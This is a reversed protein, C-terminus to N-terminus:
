KWFERVVRVWEDALVQHGSYTPHVGDWIWHMAPARKCAEDLAKQFHVLAAGHKKALGAVIAASTHDVGSSVSVASSIMRTSRAASAPARDPSPEAVSSYRACSPVVGRMVNLGSACPLPVGIM